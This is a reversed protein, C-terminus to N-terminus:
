MRTPGPSSSGSWSMIGIVPGTPCASTPLCTPSCTSTFTGRPTRLRLTTAMLRAHPGPRVNRRGRGRRRRDRPSAMRAAATGAPDPADPPDPAPDRLSRAHLAIANPPGFTTKAGYERDGLIPWGRAASQARLQHTRGTEPWLRLWAVGAPLTQTVVRRVRTVATRAGPTEPEVVEALGTRATRTLWDTWTEVVSPPAERGGAVPSKASEGVGAAEPCEVLAWYEKEVRRAEFQASLRRAAKPTKAWILVGSTPRDLRHVIGLYASRTPGPRPLAPGVARADDRGAAGLSGAHVTRGAQTRGSLRRRPLPHAPSRERATM